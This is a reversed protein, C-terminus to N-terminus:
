NIETPKLQRGGAEFHDRVADCLKLWADRHMYYSEHESRDLDKGASFLVVIGHEDGELLQVRQPYHTLSVPKKPDDERDSM